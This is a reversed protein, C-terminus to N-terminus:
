SKLGRLITYPATVYSTHLLHLLQEVPVGYAV